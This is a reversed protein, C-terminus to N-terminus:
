CLRDLRNIGEFNFLLPHICGLRPQKLFRCFFCAIEMNM